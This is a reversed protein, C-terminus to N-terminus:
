GDIDSWELKQLRLTWAEVYKGVFLCSLIIALYLYVQQNTFTISYYYFMGLVLLVYRTQYLGRVIWAQFESAKTYRLMSTKLIDLIVFWVAVFLGILIMGPINNLVNKSRDYYFMFYFAIFFSGKLLVNKLLMLWLITIEKTGLKVVNIAFNRIKKIFNM